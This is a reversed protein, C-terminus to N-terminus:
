TPIGHDRLFQVWSGLDAFLPKLKLNAQPVKGEELCMRTEVMESMLRAGAEIVADLDAETM